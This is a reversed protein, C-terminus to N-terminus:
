EAFSAFLFDRFADEKNKDFYPHRENAAEHCGVCMRTSILNASAAGEKMYYLWGGLAKPSKSDKVMITLYKPTNRRIDGRETYIEKVIIAGNKMEVRRRGDKDVTVIPQFATQNGYIIRYGAGHGPVPYDLVEKYPRRWKKYGSFDYPIDTDGKSCGLLIFAATLMIMIRM